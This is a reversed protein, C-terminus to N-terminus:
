ASWRPILGAPYSSSSMHALLTGIVQKGGSAHHSKRSHLSRARDRLCVVQQHLLFTRRDTVHDVELHGSNVFFSLSYLVLELVTM